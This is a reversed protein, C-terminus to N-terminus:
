YSAKPEFKTHVKYGGATSTLITSNQFLRGGTVGSYNDSGETASKNYSYAPDSTDNTLYYNQCYSM